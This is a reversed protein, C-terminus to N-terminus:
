RWTAIYHAGAATRTCEVRVDKRGAISLVTQVGIRTARLPWPPVDPWDLLLIEGHGPKPIDAELRGRDYSKGFIVPTRSILAKDTTLRL